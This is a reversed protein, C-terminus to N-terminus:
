RAERRADARRDNHRKLHSLYQHVIGHKRSAGMIGMGAALDALAAKITETPIRAHGNM